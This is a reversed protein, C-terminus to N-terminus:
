QVEINRTNLINGTALQFGAIAISLDAEARSEQSRATVMETQRQQVLFLTSTGARFQRQESEYQAEASARFVRASELRAQASVMAQMANRVDAEITVETQMRQNDIRRGQAIASQLNAKATRNRLPLSIQLGVTTTPFNGRFLNGLSQGYSGVLLGPVGGGTPTVVPLPELGALASLENIRETTATNGSFFSSGGNSLQAGSLGANTHTVTVNIQPKLQEKSLRQNATNIESNLQLQQMEPRRRLAEAVADDLPIIPPVLNVATTPIFATSWMQDARDGLILTKLANEAVTLAEQASYANLEFTALQTQAAVVDIPALVGESEQRRNSADQDRGLEVAELQIQLNDYAFVLNWYAQEAQTITQMLQQRFQEDTLQKNKKAVEISNRNADYLLNRWLPQTYSLNLSTPYTPNLTTFTNSTWTRQNNFDAQYTAGWPLAGNFQPDLISNKNTVAGNTGGGIASAIPVVNKTFSAATGFTPDYVGIAAASAYGSLDQDIRSINVNRNNALAMALAQELSLPMDRFIGVRPPLRFERAPPVETRGADVDPTQQALGPLAVAAALTWFTWTRIPGFVQWLNRLDHKSNRRSRM